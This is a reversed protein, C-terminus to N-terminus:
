AFRRPLRRRLRGFVWRVPRPRRAWLLEIRWKRRHRMVWIAPRGPPLRVLYMCLLSAVITVPFIYLAYRSLKAPTYRMTFDGGAPLLWGNMYGQLTVKEAGDIGTLIWGPAANEALAVATPGASTVTGSYQTPNNKDWAVAATSSVPEQRVMVIASPTSLPRLKVKRYEVQSQQVGKLDRLGYLYVRTEVANPDPPVLAQYSTWGDWVAVSPMTRCLDPGRLFYCFKPNRVAVSRAEMSYEYLSSAGVDAQAGICALHRVASLTYTTEGDAGIQSEAGLGAEDATEDDYRFCDELPEFPALVSGSLGGDVRLEHRGATLPVTVDAIPQPWIEQPESASLTEVTLNRYETVTAPSFREGADAHLIVQLDGAVGDLTLIREYSAWEDDLIARPALECGSSGSQFICIQPRTGAIHRYQLRIRYTDGPQANKIVVKTCAAHDAAHLRITAGLRKETLQLLAPPRPEYNNCDFVPYYDSVPVQDEAKTYLTLDTASGVPVPGPKGGTSWGDMSVIRSGAQVAEIKKGAPLPVILDPRQSVTKGDVKVATPDRLILRGSSIIPTLVAGARARQALTYKGAPVDITTTPSGEDIAPVPWHVVDPTVAATTAVQPSTAAPATDVRAQVATQTDVTGLVAAGADARAPVDLVRDYTRVTPSTGGNFKWIQLTGDVDLEAGPVRAMAASLVRDDAFYRNPLGRVLDHRIIVTSVGLADLLRPVPVLDGSVLATEIAQVDSNFGPVDGFYGDPKRQVVPHQVLLNAITDVGFFGWTTPMQYYDDLPLVLVKGPRPDADIREAADWWYDAVRVHTSPQTPREDPMVAGTYLPWPYALVLLLPVASGAYALRRPWVPWTVKTRLLALLGEVGIALMVGFFSVLLQGLKSMPERFLWFGPAYTYLFLNIQNLPPRLGKALFVFILILFMLGFALRRLRKPALLPALFVLAPLLYRIWIWYPQDLAEAFPLYQPRFWAWNAVMTLINPPLNNVQSWSWNTPDTFTANATAGGGGVYQNALPLLWWLNLGIAWPAGRIFWLLLRKAGDRGIILAAVLPTGAVAWAYAVLLMPPNFSLFSTPILAFGAIPAPMRRGLAVRLAVGTIFAVSGVSIINLPNPLRTLFFGNLLGFAGAAVIAPESKVFAGALYAIGFGVLGYICTYFMWQASYETLGVQHCIWILIYELWRCMTYGASGAGTTQHNWAWLVEPLWGRRIFAGMDGTAIFTGTRFWRSVIVADLALVILYPRAAVFAARNITM